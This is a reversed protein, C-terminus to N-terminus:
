GELKGLDHEWQAGSLIEEGWLFFDYSKSFSPDEEHAMTYFPRVWSPYSHVVFMDEGYIRLIIEGLKKENETSLDEYFDQDLGETRLLNTAEKFSIVPVDDIYLRDVQRVKAIDAASHREVWRIIESLM